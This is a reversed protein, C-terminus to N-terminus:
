SEMGGSEGVLKQLDLLMLMRDDVSAMGFVCNEGRGQGLDPAPKIDEALFDRVESVGDVVLGVTRQENNGIRVVIVVTSSDFPRSGLGFRARLDIIPVVVGRLNMVGLVHPPTRPMETVGGWGRIEQVSLIEVGYEVGACYFTVYQSTGARQGVQVAREATQFNNM